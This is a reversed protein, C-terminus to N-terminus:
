RLVEQGSLLMFRYKEKRGCVANQIDQLCTLNNM